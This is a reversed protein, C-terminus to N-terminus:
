EDVGQVKSLSHAGYHTLRFCRQCYDAEKKPSYGLLQPNDFQMLTGCGKCYNEM